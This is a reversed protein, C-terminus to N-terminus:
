LLVNKLVDLLFRADEEPLTEDKESAYFPAYAKAWIKKLLNKDLSLKSLFKGNKKMFFIVKEMRKTKIKYKQMKKPERYEFEFLEEELDLLFSTYKQFFSLVWSIEEPDKTKYTKIRLGEFPHPGERRGSLNLTIFFGDKLPEIQILYHKVPIFLEEWNLKEERKYYSKAIKLYDNFSIYSRSLNLEQLFNLFAKEKRTYEIELKETYFGKKKIINKLNEDLFPYIGFIKEKLDKKYLYFNDQQLLLNFLEKEEIEPMFSLEQFIKQSISLDMDERQLTELVVKILLLAGKSKIFGKIYDYFDRYSTSLKFSFLLEEWEKYSIPRKLYNALSLIKGKERSEKLTEFLLLQPKADEPFDYFNARDLLVSLYNYSLRSFNESVEEPIQPLHMFEKSFEELMEGYDEWLLLYTSIKEFIKLAESKFTNIDIKSFNQKLKFISEKINSLIENEYKQFPKILDESDLFDIFYEKLKYLPIIENHSFFAPSFFLNRLVFVISKDEEILKFIERRVFDEYEKLVKEKCINFFIEDEEFLDEAEKLIKFDRDLLIKKFVFGKKIINVDKINIPINLEMGMFFKESFSNLDMKEIESLKKIEIGGLEENYFFKALSYLVCLMLGKSKLKLFSDKLEKEKEETLNKFLHPYRLNLSNLGMQLILLPPIEIKDKVKFFNQELNKEFRIFIEEIEKENVKYNIRRSFEELKQKIIKEGFLGRIKELSHSFKIEEEKGSYYNYFPLFLKDLNKEVFDYLLYEELEKAKERFDEPFNEERILKLLYNKINTKPPLNEFAKRLIKIYNEPYFKFFNQPDPEMLNQKCTKEIEIFKLEEIEKLFNSKEAELIKIIEEQSTLFKLNM